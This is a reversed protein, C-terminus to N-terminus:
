GDSPLFSAFQRKDRLFAAVWTLILMVSGMIIEENHAMHICIVGGWFGSTLLVGLSMTRPIILLIASIMEGAGILRIKDAFGFATLKEVIEPPASGLVKGSGAFIMLAGILVHLVIGAIRTKKGM